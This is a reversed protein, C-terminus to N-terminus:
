ENEHHRQNLRSFARATEIDVVNGGLAVALKSEVDALREGFSALKELEMEVAVLAEDAHSQRARVKRVEESLDSLAATVQQVSITVADHMAAILPRVEDNVADALNAAVIAERGHERRVRDAEVEALVDRFQKVLEVNAAATARASRNVGYGYLAVGLGALMCLTLTVRGFSLIESHQWGSMAAYLALLLYAVLALLGGAVGRRAVRVNLNPPEEVDTNTAGVTATQM